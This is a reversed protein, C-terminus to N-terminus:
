EEDVEKKEAVPAAEAEAYFKGTIERLRARMVNVQGSNRRNKFYVITDKMDQGITEDGFIVQNGIRRLIGEEVLEEIEAQTDLNEDTAYRLFTKPRKEKEEYLANEVDMDMMKDPNTGPVCVRLLKRMRSYDGDLKLFEKDADKKFKVLENRKVKEREPDYIYFRKEANDLMLTETEAVHKHRQIWRWYIYDMPNIPSKDDRLGVELERGEFPVLLSLSAWFDHAKQPWDQHTPPVNLIPRLLQAEEEGEVGKLPLRNVFISGIRIKAAARIEKPLHGMTERRRVYIKKSTM